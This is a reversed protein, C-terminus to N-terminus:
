PQLRQAKYGIKLKLGPGLSVVSAEFEWSRPRWATRASLHAGRRLAALATIGPVGPEAAAAAGRTGKDRRRPRTGASPFGQEPPVHACRGPKGPAGARCGRTTAMAVALAPVRPLCRQRAARGRRGPPLEVRTRAPKGPGRPAPATSSEGLGRPRAALAPAHACPVRGGLGLHPAFVRRMRPAHYPPKTEKAVERFKGRAGGPAPSEGRSTRLRPPIGSIRSDKVVFATAEARGTQM